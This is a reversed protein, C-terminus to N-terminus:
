QHIKVDRIRNLVEKAATLCKFMQNAAKRRTVVEDSEKLLEEANGGYLREILYNRITDGLKMILFFTIVKPTQDQVTKKVVQFYSDILSRLIKHINAERETLHGTATLAGSIGEFGSNGSHGATILGVRSRGSDAAPAVQAATPTMFAALDGMDPHNTNIYSTEAMITARLHDEAMPRYTRLLEVTVDFVRQKLTPYREMKATCQDAIRVIEDFVFSVCRLCPEELRRIQGQLLAEFAQQSPFLQTHIGQSNSIATRIEDDSLDRTPSVTSIYPVFREHFIYNIRAGGYLENKPADAYRGHMSDTVANAYTTLLDLVHAQSNTVQAEGGYKVLEASALKLLEDIKLRLGPLMERIHNLLMTSLTRALYSTGCRDAFRHYVEHNQFFAEEDKRAESVPKKNDLDRQGRNVVGVFGRRLKMSRGELIDSADTGKDMLDIKTLVGLTRMGERDALQAVQIGDSTALDTNAPHVALIITNPQSVYQMVMKRVQEEIDKPQDGIPNRVLGPLDVLTLTVVNPSFVKLTIPVPSINKGGGAVADTETEIERRIDQFDTFKVGPKHLFEGYEQPTTGNPHAFVQHLQLILPRRTVIGSGRPLFDRGVIAELVSSKGSSQSGVVAIQPLELTQSIPINVRNFVDHLENIIPILQDM